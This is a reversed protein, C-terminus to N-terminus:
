GRETEQFIGRQGLNIDSTQEGCGRDVSHPESGWTDIVSFLKICTRSGRFSEMFHFLYRQIVFDKSHILKQAHPAAMHSDGTFHM